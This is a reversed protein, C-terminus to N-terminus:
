LRTGFGVLATPEDFADCTDKANKKVSFFVFSFPLRKELSHFGLVHLQFFSSPFKSLFDRRRPRREKAKFSTVFLSLSLSLSSSSSEREREREKPFM